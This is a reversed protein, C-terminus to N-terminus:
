VVIVWTSGWVNGDLSLVVYTIWLILYMQNTPKITNLAVKLLIETIEHLDTKNTLYSLILYSLILYSLILYTKNMNFYCYLVLGQPSNVSMPPPFWLFGGVQRLDSVSKIVYYQVGRGPRSELECWRHYADIAYNTKFGVVMRELGRRDRFSFILLVYFM